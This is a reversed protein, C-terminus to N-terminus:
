RSVLARVRRELDEVHDDREGLARLSDALRFLYEVNAGSPGVSTAIREAIAQAPEHDGLDWANGPPAIYSIADVHSAPEDLEVRVRRPAYGAQERVDLEAFIEEARAREFRFAVGRVSASPADRLTVVRGPRERTGRHDDSAQTFSRRFGRLTASRKEVFPFSPRYIVSGYGFLWDVDHV